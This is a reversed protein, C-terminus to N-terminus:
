FMFNQQSNIWINKLSIEAGSFGGGFAVGIVSNVVVVGKGGTVCGGKVVGFGDFTTDHECQLM